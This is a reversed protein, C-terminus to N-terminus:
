QQGECDPPPQGRFLAVKRGDATTWIPDAMIDAAEALDEERCCRICKEFSSIPPFRAALSEPPLEPCARRGAEFARRRREEHRAEGSRCFERWAEAIALPRRATRVNGVVFLVRMAESGHRRFGQQVFFHYYAAIKERIPGAISESGRDAEVYAAVRSGPASAAALVLMLDPRFSHSRQPDALDALRERLVFRQWPQKSRRLRADAHMRWEPVGDVLVVPSGPRSCSLRFEIWTRNVLVTHRFFLSAPGEPPKASFPLSGLDVGRLSAITELGQRSLCFAVQDTPGGELRAVFGSQTLRGRLARRIVASSRGLLRALQGTLLVRHQLLAEVIPWDGEALLRTV